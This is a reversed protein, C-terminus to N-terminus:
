TDCSVLVCSPITPQWAPAVTTIMRDDPTGPVTRTCTHLMYSRIHVRFFGTEDSCKRNLIRSWGLVRWEGAGDHTM